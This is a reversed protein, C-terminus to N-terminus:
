AYREDFLVPSRPPAQRRPIAEAREECDRCRIAFPMALLRQDSIEQGCEACLGYADADLRRLAEDVRRVTGAKIGLLAYDIDEEQVREVRDLVDSAHLARSEDRVHRMSEAIEGLLQGRYSELMRRLRITRQKATM